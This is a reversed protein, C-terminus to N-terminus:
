AGEILKPFPTVNDPANGEEAALRVALAIGDRVKDSTTPKGPKPRSAAEAALNREDRWEAIRAALKGDRHLSNVVRATSKAGSGKLDVLFDRVEHRALGAAQLVAAINQFEPEPHSEPPEPEDGERANRPTGTGRTTSYTSPSPAPAPSSEPPFRTGDRGGSRTGSSAGSEPPMAQCFECEPVRLKRKVHWRVHNGERGGDSEKARKARISDADPNREAWDHFQWGGEAVEWLGVSVLSRAEGPTGDLRRLVEKPVFGDTLHDMCWSLASTWLARAGKTASIWKIHSHLKDDVLGYPM